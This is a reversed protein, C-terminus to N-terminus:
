SIGTISLKINKILVHVSRVIGGNNLVPTSLFMSYVKWTRKFATHGRAKISNEETIDKGTAPLRQQRSAEKFM